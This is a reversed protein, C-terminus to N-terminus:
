VQGLSDWFSGLAKLICEPSELFRSQLKKSGDDMGQQKKEALISFDAVGRVELAGLDGRLDFFCFRSIKFAELVNNGLSRLNKHRNRRFYFLPVHFM